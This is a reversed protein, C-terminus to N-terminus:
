SDQSHLWATFDAITVTVAFLHACTQCRFDVHTSETDHSPIDRGAFRIPGGCAPCVIENAAAYEALALAVPPPSEDREAEAAYTGSGVISRSKRTDNWNDYVNKYERAAILITAVVDWYAQCTGVAGSQVLHDHDPHAIWAGLAQLHAPDNMAFAAVPHLSLVQGAFADRNGGPAAAEDEGPQNQNHWLQLLRESMADLARNARLWQILHIWATAFCTYFAVKSEYAFLNIFLRSRDEGGRKRLKTIWQGITAVHANLGELGQRQFAVLGTGIWARAAEQFAPMEEPPPMRGLFLGELEARVRATDRAHAVARLRDAEDPPLSFARRAIRTSHDGWRTEAYEREVNSALQADLYVDQLSRATNVLPYCEALLRATQADDDDADGVEEAIAWWLDVCSRFNLGPPRHRLSASNIWYYTVWGAPGLLLSRTDLTFSFQRGEFEITATFRKM